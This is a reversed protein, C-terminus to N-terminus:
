SNQAKAALKEQVLDLKKELRKVQKVVRKKDRKKAQTKVRTLLEKASYERKM